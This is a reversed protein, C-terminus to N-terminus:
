FNEAWREWFGPADHHANRMAVHLELACFLVGPLRMSGDLDELHGVLQQYAQNTDDFPADVYIQGAYSMMCNENAVDGCPCWGIQNEDLWAIVAQRMTSSRWDWTEPAEDLNCGHDLPASFRIFLVDRKKKRAIADIFEILQPM